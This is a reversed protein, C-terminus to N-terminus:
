RNAGSMVEALSAPSLWEVEQYGLLETFIRAIDQAAEAVTPASGLERAVSTVDADAIGCAVISQYHTLDTALNLSFGHMSVWRRLHVGLAAIKGGATWVGPYGRRRRAELGVGALYRIVTEELLSVYKPVSLSRPRLAVIPYGVIQGPGHYTVRGGREVEHVQFGRAKLLERADLLDDEQTRRGLTITPPHELLLLTDPTADDLRARRLGRQLELAEEYAVLGLHCVCLRGEIAGASM